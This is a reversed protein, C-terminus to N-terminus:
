LILNLKKKYQYTTSDNHRHSITANVLRTTGYM